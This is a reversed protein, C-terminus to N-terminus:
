KKPNAQDAAKATGGQKAIVQDKIKEYQSAGVIKKNKLDTKARYPRGDIIKQATVPGIGPLAALEDATASNIDVKATSKDTATSAQSKSDKATSSASSQAFGLSVALVVIALAWARLMNKKM